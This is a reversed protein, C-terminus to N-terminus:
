AAGRNVSNLVAVIGPALAKAFAEHGLRTPHCDRAYFLKHRAQQPYLALEPLPDILIAGAALAAEAFCRAYPGADSIGLVYHFLPLPAIIVPRNHGATWELLIARLTRWARNSPDDYEPLPQYAFMFQLREKLGSEVVIRRVALNTTFWEYAKHAFPFRGIRYILRREDTTLTIPDIPLRGPPAGRLVLGDSGNLEFFPKEYLVSCGAEDKFHRYRTIVRRLNEVCVAIMVLDHQIERAYRKFLLYHQDPGSAPLGFNYVELNPVLAELLDGFRQGNSVGDGATFSDGFLLLRRKGTRREGVFQADSRFGLENARVLYSGGEHPIRVRVGPIFRWGVIPDYELYQRM